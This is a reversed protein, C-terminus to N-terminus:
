FSLIINKNLLPSSLCSSTPVFPFDLLVNFYFTNGQHNLPYHIWRCHLLCLLHLNLGQTPFIVELLFHCGVGTNKGPINWSCLLSIRKLEHPRLSSSLDSCSLMCFLLHYLHYGEESFTQSSYKILAHRLRM